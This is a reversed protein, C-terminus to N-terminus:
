LSGEDASGGTVFAQKLLPWTPCCCPEVDLGYLECRPTGDGYLVSVCTLPRKQDALSPWVLMVAGTLLHMTYTRKGTTCPQPGPRNCLEARGGHCCVDEEYATTWEQEAEAVTVMTYGHFYRIDKDKMIGTQPRFGIVSLGDIVDADDDDDPLFLLIIISVGLHHQPADRRYFGHRVDPRCRSADDLLQQARAFSVGRDVHLRWYHLCPASTSLKVDIPYGEEATICKVRGVWPYLSSLNMLQGQRSVLETSDYEFHKSHQIFRYDCVFDLTAKRGEICLGDVDGLAAFIERIWSARDEAIKAAVKELGDRRTPLNRIVITQKLATSISSLFESRDAASLSTFAECHLVRATHLEATRRVASVLAEISHRSGIQWAPVCNTPSLRKILISVLSEILLPVQLFAAADLLPAISCEDELVISGEYLIQVVAEVAAAYMGDLQIVGTSAESCSSDLIGRVFHSGSALVARHVLFTQGDVLVTLDCYKQARWLEILGSPCREEAPTSVTIAGDPVPKLRKSGAPEELSPGLLRVFGPRGSM